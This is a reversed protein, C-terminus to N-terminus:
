AVLSQDLLLIFDPLSGAYIVKDQFVTLLSPKGNGTQSKM